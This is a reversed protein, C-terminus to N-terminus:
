NLAKHYANGLPSDPVSMARFQDVASQFQKDICSVPFALPPNSPDKETVTLTVGIKNKLAAVFDDSIKVYKNFWKGAANNVLNQYQPDTHDKQKAAM